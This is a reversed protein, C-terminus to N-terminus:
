LIAGIVDGLIAWYITIAKLSWFNFRETYLAILLQFVNAVIEKTTKRVMIVVEMNGTKQKGAHRKYAFFIGKKGNGAEWNGFVLVRM